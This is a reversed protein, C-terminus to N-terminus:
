EATTLSTGSKGPGDPRDIQCNFPTRLQPCPLCERVSKREGVIRAFERQWDYVLM